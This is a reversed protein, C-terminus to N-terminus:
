EEAEICGFVELRRRCQATSEFRITQMGFQRAATLNVEVDDIFVTQSPVLAYTDLLYASV